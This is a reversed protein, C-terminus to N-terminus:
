YYNTSWGCTCTGATGPWCCREVVAGSGLVVVMVTVVQVYSKFKGVYGPPAGVLRSISHRESLEGCSLHLLAQPEGPLLREALLRAMSSKGVGSPGSLLLSLSLRAQQQQQQMDAPTPQQLSQSSNHQLGLRSLRLAGIAAAAAADQGLVASTLAAHIADLDQMAAQVSSSFAPGTGAEVM